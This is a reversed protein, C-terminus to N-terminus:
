ESRIQLLTSNEKLFTPFCNRFDSTSLDSLLFTFRNANTSSNHLSYIKDCKEVCFIKDSSSKSLAVKSRACAFQQWALSRRTRQAPPVFLFKEFEKNTIDIELVYCKRYEPLVSPLISHLNNDNVLAVITMKAQNSLFSDLISCGYSLSHHSSQEHCHIKSLISEEGKVIAHDIVFDGPRYLLYKHPPKTLEKSVAQMVLSTGSPNRVTLIAKALDRYVGCVRVLDYDGSGSPEFCRFVPPM